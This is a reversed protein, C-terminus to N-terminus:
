CTSATARLLEEAEEASGAALVQGARPALTKVLFNRMGPEDDVVLVTALPWSDPPAPLAVANV